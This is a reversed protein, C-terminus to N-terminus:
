EVFTITYRHQTCIFQSVEFDCVAKTQDYSIKILDYVIRVDPRNKYDDKLCLEILPKLPHESPLKSLDGRRRELEPVSGINMLGCTPQCQTAIQLMLVGLSFVDVKVSFHSDGSKLAEPPMYVVNGPATTSMYVDGNELLKSQGLDSVKVSGDEGILVNKDTVDRHAVPPNREHLFKLGSSIKLCIELQRKRSLTGRNRSIYQRLNEKMRELVLMPEGTRSEFAGYSKVINPHNELSALLQCERIFDELPKGRAIESHVTKVAVPRGNFEGERVAGYAGRGLEKSSLKLNAPCKPLRQREAM